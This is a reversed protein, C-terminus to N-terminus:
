SKLVMAVGAVCLLMGAIALGSMQENFLLWAEAAAFPPVLYFLSAVQGADGRQILWMLLLVAGLSLVIILWSLAFIFDGTWQIQMSEFALCLVLLFLVNATYQTCVGPLLAIGTCYRKQYITGISIGLLSFVCFLLGVPEAGDARLGTGTLVLLVGAFGAVIGATKWRTVPESLFAAALIVTVLPQLSVILASLGADVGRSIAFFVGGLYVGHILVGVLGVNFYDRLNVPWQQRLVIAIIYLLSAAILMRVFLFTFPEAYPLGYKAGIFGTSWLFVFLLPILYRTSVSNSTMPPQASTQWYLLALTDHVKAARFSVILEDATDCSSRLATM